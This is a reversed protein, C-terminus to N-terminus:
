QTVLIKGNDILIFGENSMAKLEDKEEIELVIQSAQSMMYAPIKLTANNGYGFHQDVGIHHYLYEINFYKNPEPLIHGSSTLVVVAEVYYELQWPQVPGFDRLDLTYGQYRRRLSIDILAARNTPTSPVPDGDRVYDVYLRYNKKAPVFRMDFTVKGDIGLNKFELDRLPDIEREVGNQLAKIFYKTNTGFIEVGGLRTTPTVVFLSDDAIPNYEVVTPCDVEVTIIENAAINTNLMMNGAFKLWDGTRTDYYQAEFELEVQEGAPINQMILLTGRTDDTSTDIQYNSNGTVSSGNARWTIGSLEKNVLGNPLIQDPDVISCRPYIVVPTIAHDPVWENKDPYYIQTVAGGEVLLSFTKNLPSFNRILDSTLRM